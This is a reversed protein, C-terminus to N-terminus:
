RGIITPPETHAGSFYVPLGFVTPHFGSHTQEVSVHWGPRAAMMLHPREDDHCLLAFPTKGSRVVNEIQLMLANLNIRLPVSMDLTKIEGM